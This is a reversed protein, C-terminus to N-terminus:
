GVLVLKNEDDFGLIRLEFNNQPYMKERGFKNKCHQYDALANFLDNVKLIVGHPYFCVVSLCLIQGIEYSNKLVKWPEEYELMSQKWLSIFEESPVEQSSEIDDQWSAEPLIHHESRLDNTFTNFLGDPTRFVARLCYFEDDLEAFCEFTYELSEFDTFKYYKM